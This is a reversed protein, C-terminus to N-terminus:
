RRRDVTLRRCAPARAAGHGALGRRAARDASARGAHPLGRRPAPRHLRPEGPLDLDAVDVPRGADAETVQRFLLAKGSGAVERARPSTSARRASAPTARASSVASTAPGASSGPGDARDIEAVWRHGPLWKDALAELPPVETEFTANRTAIGEAYIDSCWRAPRRRDDGAHHRRGAPGRPLVAADVLTGMVVDAAHPLGSCCAPNVSVVSATGVKDVAVFGSRPSAGSTTRARRSASAWPRDALDGVRVSGSPATSVTHLLRVRTPDSLTAFWEAYTTAAAPDLGATPAAAPECCEDPETASPVPVVDLTSMCVKCRRSRHNCGDIVTSVTKWRVGISSDRPSAMVAEGVSRGVEREHDDAGTGDAERGRGVRVDRPGASGRGPPPGWRRTRPARTPDRGARRPRARAPRGPRQPAAPARPSPGARRRGSGRSAPTPRAVVQRRERRREHGGPQDVDLGTVPDDADGLLTAVPQHVGAPVLRAKM